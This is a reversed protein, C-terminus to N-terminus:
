TRYEERSTGFRERCSKDRDPCSEDHDSFERSGESIRGKSRVVPEGKEGREAAGADLNGAIEEVIRQIGPMVGVCLASLSRKADSGAPAHTRTGHFTPSQEKHQKRRQRCNREDESLAPSNNEYTDGAQKTRIKVRASRKRQGVMSKSLQEHQQKETKYCNNARGKDLDSPLRSVGGNVSGGDHKPNDTTKERAHENFYVVNAVARLIGSSALASKGHAKAVSTRATKGHSKEDGRVGDGALERLNKRPEAPIPTPKGCQENATYDQM